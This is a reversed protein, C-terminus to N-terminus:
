AVAMVTMIVVALVVWSKLANRPAAATKLDEELRTFLHKAKREREPRGELKMWWQCREATRDALAYPVAQGYGAAGFVMQTENRFDPWESRDPGNPSGTMAFSLLRAFPAEKGNYLRYPNRDTGEDINGEYITYPARSDNTLFTYAAPGFAEATAYTNCAVHGDSLIRRLRETQNKYGQHKWNWDEPYLHKLVHNLSKRSLRPFFRHVERRVQHSDPDPMSPATSNWSFRDNGVILQLLTLPANTSAM